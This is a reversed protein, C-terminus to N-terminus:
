LTSPIGMEGSSSTAQLVPCVLLAIAADREPRASIALLRRHLAVQTSIELIKSGGVIENLDINRDIGMQLDCLDVTPDDSGFTRRKEKTIWNSRTKRQHGIKKTGLAPYLDTETIVSLLEDLTQNVECFRYHRRCEGFEPTSPIHRFGQQTDTQFSSGM